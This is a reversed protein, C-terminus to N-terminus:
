DAAGAAVAAESKAWAFPRLEDDLPTGAIHNTYNSLTKMAVGLVVELVQPQEFGSDLFDRVAEDPVWGRERVVARTFARLADLRADPLPEGSRAAEILEDDAGAQKLGGTHAAMCYDCGNEYSVSLLVIQQEVADFSTEQLLGNLALYGEAAPPAHAMVRILNPVFGLGERAKEMAQRGADSAHEPDLPSIRTTDSM